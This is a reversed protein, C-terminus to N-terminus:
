KNGFRELLLYCSGAPHPHPMSLLIPFPSVAGFRRKMVIHPDRITGWTGRLMQLHWHAPLLERHSPFGKGACCCKPNGVCGSSQQIRIKMDSKHWKQLCLLACEDLTERRSNCLFSTNLGNCIHKKQTVAQFFKLNCLLNDSPWINIVMIWLPFYFNHYSESM